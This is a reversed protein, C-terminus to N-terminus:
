ANRGRGNNSGPANGGVNNGNNSGPANGGVNNAPSGGAPQLGAAGTDGGNSNGGDGGDGGDTPAPSAPPEQTPEPEPEPATAEAVDLTVTQGRALRGSNPDTSVVNGPPQENTPVQRVSARLGVAALAERAQAETMGVLNRPIAVDGSPIYLTVSADTQVVAGAAPDTRLVQNDAGPEDVTEVTGTLGLNRLASQAESQSMGRLDPVTVNGSAVRLAVPSGAAVSTGAPPDTSVVEGATGPDDVEQVDGVTLGAGQLAERAQAQTQGTVDPVEVAGPGSSFRVEVTSGADVDEGVAPTSSTYQGVPVDASAEDEGKAFTLGADEIAQRAATQDMGQLPPVAVQDAGGDNNLLAFAGALLGIAALIALVWIWGRNKKKEEEQETLLAAHTGTGTGGLTSTPDTGAAMVATPAAGVAAAGAAVGGPVGWVQAAPADVPLGARMAVLDDRFHAADAYRDERDKALAKLVVRDLAEPVDSAISSPTRPTERVHQYAVAVASDGSFPPEGTLLEFLLVGTSYLDSRADVQEGRAQEPSLYQATGVVSQAETMTASTDALARAIGFDMVKVEGQPTLMINGPKIDRHVIGQRHSYELAALVGVTIDIAEDIPVADGGSLLERVTHGEVYEMVIYPITGDGSPTPDEGTDYVAVIAPHNLAAASQAERRFRAQFMPDRALDPRLMKIAVTRSLRTDYGIHVAAMGGRGILERIEYRDALMHPTDTAM